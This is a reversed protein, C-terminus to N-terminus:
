LRALLLSEEVKMAQTHGGRVGQQSKRYSWQVLFHFEELLNIVQEHAEKTQHAELIFLFGRQFSM